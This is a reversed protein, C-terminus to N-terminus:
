PCCTGAGHAWPRLCPLGHPIQRNWSALQPQAGLLDPHNGGLVPQAVGDQGAPGARPSGPVGAELGWGLCPLDCLAATTGLKRFCQPLCQRITLRAPRAPTVLAATRPSFRAAPRVKTARGLTSVVLELTVQDRSRRCGRTCGTERHQQSGGVAGLSPSLAAPACCRQVAGWVGGDRGVQGWPRPAPGRSSVCIQDGGGGERQSRRHSGLVRLARTAM